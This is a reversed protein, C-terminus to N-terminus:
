AMRLPPPRIFEDGIRNRNTRWYAALPTGLDCVRGLAGPPPAHALGFACAPDGSARHERRTGRACARSLLGGHPGTGHRRPVCWYTSAVRRAGAILFARTLGLVGEGRVVKGSATECASLVVLDCLAPLRMIRHLDLIEGGALALGSRAPQRPDLVSHCALHIAYWGTRTHMADELAARTAQRGVLSVRANPAFHAGIAEIESRAHPLPPFLAVPAPAYSPDGLALLDIGPRVGRALRRLAHYTSASPAMVFAFTEVARQPGAAGPILLAAMPIRALAGDPSVIVRNVGRLHSRLPTFVRDGLSRALAVDDTAPTSLQTCWTAVADALGETVGLDVVQVSDGRVVMAALRDVGWAYSVWAEDVGLVDQLAGLSLPTPHAVAAVQGGIREVRRVVEALRHEAADRAAALAALSTADDPASAAQVMWAERAADVADRAQTWEGLLVASLRARLIADRNRVHSHLLVARSSELVEFLQAPTPRDTVDRQQMRLYSAVAVHAAQWVRGLASRREVDGFGRSTTLSAHVAQVATTFADADRGLADLAQARVRLHLEVFVDPRGRQGRVTGARDLLALAERPKDMQLYLMAWKAHLYPNVIDAAKLVAEARQYTALADAHRGAVRLANGLEELAHGLSLAGPRRQARAVALEALEIARNTDGLEGVARSLYRAVGGELHALGLHRARTLAREGHIRCRDWDGVHLHAYALQHENEAAEPHHEDLAVYQALSAELRSVGEAVRGARVLTIGLTRTAQALALADDRAKADDLMDEALTVAHSPRGWWAIIYAAHMRIHHLAAPDAGTMASAVAAQALPVPSGQRGEEKRLSVALRMQAQGHAVPDGMASLAAHRHRSAEQAVADDNITRAAKAAGSWLVASWPFWRMDACHRAAARMGAAAEAHAGLASRARAGSWRLSLAFPSRPVRDITTRHSAFWAAVHSVDGAALLRHGRLRARALIQEDAWRKADHKTWLAQLAGLGPLDRHGKAHAALHALDALVNQGATAPDPTHILRDSALALALEVLHPSAGFALARARLARDAEAAERFQMATRHFSALWGPLAGPADDAQVPFALGVVLAALLSLRVSTM